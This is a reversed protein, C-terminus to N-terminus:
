EDAKDVGRMDAGCDPCFNSTFWKYHMCLSCYYIPVEEDYETSKIWEGKKPEANAMAHTIFLADNLVCGMCNGVGADDCAKCLTNEIREILEERDILDAM